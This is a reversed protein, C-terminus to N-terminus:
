VEARLENLVLADAERAALSQFRAFSADERLGLLVECGLKHIANVRHTDEMRQRPRHHSVDRSTLDAIQQLALSQRPAFKFHVDGVFHDLLHDGEAVARTIPRTVEFALDFFRDGIRQRPLDVRQPDVCAASRNSEVCFLISDKGCVKRRLGGFRFRRRGSNLRRGLGTEAVDAFRQGDEGRADFSQFLQM